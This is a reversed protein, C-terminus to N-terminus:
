KDIVPLAALFHDVTRQWSYHSARISGKEALSRRKEANMLLDEMGTKISFNDDPNVFLAADGAVEKLSGRDSTLVPVGAHMADLLPLGFGEYLSPYTFIASQSLLTNCADDPLYEKWEVHETSRALAVIDDDQWGRKGVLILPHRARMALPLLAHAQILRKQNKRPCLTAICLVFTDQVHPLPHMTPNSAAFIPVIHHAPFTPFRAQVDKKTTESVTCVRVSNKLARGLTLREILTARRDHPEGRFAILDHVITVVPKANRLLVPVIYSVTSVYIDIEADKRLFSAVTGHWRLGRQPFQRVAITHRRSILDSWEAPLAEDTCLTLSIDRQLLATVFGYVWQGKGTRQARCAERVDIGLHM